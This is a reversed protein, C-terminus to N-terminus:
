DFRREFRCIDHWDCLWESFLQIETAQEAIIDRCLDLLDGHHARNLCRDAERIATSHHRIMMSMYEAEFESTSLAEMRAMRREEGATMEPEHQIGYWDALWSQMMEIQQSQSAIIQECREELQPRVNKEVCIESMEVAMAHHDIMDELFRIEFTAASTAPAPESALVPSSSFLSGAVAALLLTTSSLLLAATRSKNVRM